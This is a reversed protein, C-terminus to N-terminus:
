RIFNLLLASASKCEIVESVYGKPRPALFSKDIAKKPLLGAPLGARILSLGDCPGKIQGVARQAANGATLHLGDPRARHHPDADTSRDAQDGCAVPAEKRLGAALCGMRVSLAM